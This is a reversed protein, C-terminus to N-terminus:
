QLIWVITICIFAIDSNHMHIGMWFTNKQAAVTVVYVRLSLDEAKKKKKKFHTKEM